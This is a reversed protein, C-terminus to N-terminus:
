LFSLLAYIFAPHVPKDLFRVMKIYTGLIDSSTSNSVVSESALGYVQRRICHMTNFATMWMWGEELHYAAADSGQAVEKSIVPRWTVSSQLM